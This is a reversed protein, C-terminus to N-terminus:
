SVRSNHLAETHSINLYCCSCDSNYGKDRDHFPTFDKNNLAFFMDVVGGYMDKGDWRDYRVPTREIFGFRVHTYTGYPTEWKM